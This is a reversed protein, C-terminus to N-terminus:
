AYHLQPELIVARLREALKTGSLRDIASEGSFRHYIYARETRQSPIVARVNRRERAWEIRIGGEGDPAIAPTPIPENIESYAVRLIAVATRFAFDSIPQETDKEEERLAKLDAMVETVKTCLRRVERPEVRPCRPLYMVVQLQKRQLDAIDWAESGGAVFHDPLGEYSRSLGTFPYDPVQSMDTQPNEELTRSRTRTPGPWNALVYTEDERPRQVRRQAIGLGSSGLGGFVPSLNVTHGSNHFGFNM